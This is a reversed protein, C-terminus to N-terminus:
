VPWIRWRVAAMPFKRMIGRRRRARERKDRTLMIRTNSRRKMNVVNRTLTIVPRARVFRASGHPNDTAREKSIKVM